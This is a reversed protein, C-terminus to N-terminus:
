WITIYDYIHRNDQAICYIWYGATVTEPPYFLHCKPSSNIGLNFLHEIGDTTFSEKSINTALERYLGAM